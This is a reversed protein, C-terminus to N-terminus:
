IHILSLGIETLHFICTQGFNALQVGVEYENDLSANFRNIWKVLRAHFESASNSEAIERMKAPHSDVFIAPDIKPISSQISTLRAFDNNM